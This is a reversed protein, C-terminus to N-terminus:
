FYTIDLKAFLYSIQINSGFTRQEGLGHRHVAIKIGTIPLLFVDEVKHTTKLVLSVRFDSLILFVVFLESTRKM